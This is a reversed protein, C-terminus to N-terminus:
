LRSSSKRSKSRRYVRTKMEPKHTRDAIEPSTVRCGARIVYSTAIATERSTAWSRVGTASLPTATRVTDAGVEAVEVGTTAAARSVTIAGHAMAMMGTEVDPLNTAVGVVAVKAAEARAEEVKVAEAKAAEAKATEVKVVVAEKEKGMPVEMHHRAAGITPAASTVRGIDFAVGDTTVRIKGGVGHRCGDDKEVMPKRARAPQVAKNKRRRRSKRKAMRIERLNLKRGPSRRNLM